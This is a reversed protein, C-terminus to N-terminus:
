WCRSHRKREVRNALKQRELSNRKAKWEAETAGTDTDLSMLQLNVIGLKIATNKSAIEFGPRYM